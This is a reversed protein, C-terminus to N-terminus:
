DASKKKQYRLLHVLNLVVIQMRWVWFISGTQLHLQDCLRELPADHCQNPVQIAVVDDLATQLAEPRLLGLEHIVSRARMRQLYGRVAVAAAHQLATNVKGRRVLSSSQHVINGLM